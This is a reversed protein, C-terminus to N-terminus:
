PEISRCVDFSARWSRGTEPHMRRSVGPVPIAYSAATWRRYEAGAVAAGHRTNKGIALDDLVESITADVDGNTLGGKSPRKMCPCTM